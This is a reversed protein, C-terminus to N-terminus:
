GGLYQIIDIIARLVAISFCAGLALGAGAVICTIFLEPRSSPPVWFQLLPVFTQNLHVTDAVVTRQEPPNGHPFQVVM